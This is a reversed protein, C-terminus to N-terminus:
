HPVEVSLGGVLIRVKVTMRISNPTPRVMGGQAGIRLEDGSANWDPMESSSEWPFADVPLEAVRKLLSFREDGADNPEADLTDKVPGQRAIFDGVSQGILYAATLVRRIEVAFSFAPRTAHLNKNPRQLGEHTIEYLAFGIVVRGDPTVGQVPVLFNQNHKIRNCVLDIDRRDKDLHAINLKARRPVFYAAVSESITEIYEALRAILVAHEDLLHPFAPSGIPDLERQVRSFSDLVRLLAREVAAWSVSALAVPHPLKRDAAFTPGEYRRIDPFPGPKYGCNDKGNRVITRPQVIRGGCKIWRTSCTPAPPERVTSRM